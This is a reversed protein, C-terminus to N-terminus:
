RSAALKLKPLQTDPIELDIEIISMDEEKKMSVNLRTEDIAVHKAVAALVEERLKALLESSGGGVREHALLIQLRDRAASATKKKRAFLGFVSM